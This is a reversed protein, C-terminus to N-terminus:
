HRPPYFDLALINQNWSKKWLQTLGAMVDVMIGCCKKMKASYQNIICIITNTLSGNSFWTQIDLSPQLLLHFNYTVLPIPTKMLSCLACEIEIACSKLLAIITEMSKLSFWKRTWLRQKSQKTKYICPVSFFYLLYDEQFFSSPSCIKLNLASDFM